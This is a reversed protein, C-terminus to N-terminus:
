SQIRRPQPVRPNNHNLPHDDKWRPSGEDIANASAGCFPCSQHWVDHM